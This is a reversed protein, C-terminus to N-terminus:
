SSLLKRLEKFSQLSLTRYSQTTSCKKYVEQEYELADLAAEGNEYGGYYKM